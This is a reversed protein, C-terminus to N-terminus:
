RRRGGFGGPPTMPRPAAPPPAAPRAVSPTNAVAQRSMQGRSSANRVANGNSIGQFAEGQNSSHDGANRNTRPENARAQERADRNRQAAEGRSLEQRPQETGSHNLGQSAQTRGRYPERSQVAEPSSTQKYKEAAARDGYPVGMRDAPNHQWTGKGSQDVQATKQYNKTYFNRNINQNLNSNRATDLNVSRNSWDIGVWAYGWAPGNQIRNRLSYPTPRPGEELRNKIRDRLEDSPYWYYPPYDSYWWYGYAETPDYEPVSLANSDSSDITIIQNNDRVIQEDNTKLTGKEQAKKRLKQITDMVNKQQSLFADGIKQTFEIKAAMMQLLDPFNVLSKVSADWRKDELAEVLGTSNLDNNERCWKDAQVVEIPYTSAMLIQALLSDPYLAIPAFIQDLEEQKFQAANLDGFLVWLLVICFFILFFTNEINKKM